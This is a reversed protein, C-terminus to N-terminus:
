EAAQKLEAGYAVNVAPPPLVEAPKEEDKGEIAKALDMFKVTLKGLRERRAQDQRQIMAIQEDAGDKEAKMSDSLMQAAKLLEEHVVEGRANVDEIAKIAEAAAEVAKLYSTQM